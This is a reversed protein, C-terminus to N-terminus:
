NHIKREDDRERTLPLFRAEVDEETRNCPPLHAEGYRSIWSAQLTNPSHDEFHTEGRGKVYQNLARM